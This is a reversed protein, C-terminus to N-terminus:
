SGDYMANVNMLVDSFSRGQQNCIHIGYFRIAGLIESGGLPWIVSIDCLFHYKLSIVPEMSYKERIMYTLAPHFGYYLSKGFDM